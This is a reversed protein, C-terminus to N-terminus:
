VLTIRRTTSAFKDIVKDYDIEKSLKREISIIALHSLRDENMTSRLYTKIRKLASFSREASASSVPVTLAAQVLKSLLSFASRGEKSRKSDSESPISESSSTSTCFHDRLCSECCSEKVKFKCKM